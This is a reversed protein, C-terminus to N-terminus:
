SFYKQNKSKPKNPETRQLKGYKLMRDLYHRRFYSREINFTEMIERASKPESCFEIIQSMIDQDNDQDSQGHHLGDDRILELYRDCAKCM